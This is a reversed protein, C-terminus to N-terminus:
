DIWYRRFAVDDSDAPVVQELVGGCREIVSSSGINDDDCTVLVRGVGNARAIVLAQRLIQTAFGRRRYEGLVAYGIHGGRWNLFDNMEFRVSVRGVVAGDLDAALLTSRVRHEGLDVGRRDNELQNLYQPWSMEADWFLLFTFEGELERHAAIAATEDDLTFPRLRIRIAESM